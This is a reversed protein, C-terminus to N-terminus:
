TLGTIYFSDAEGTMDKIKDSLTILDIEINNKYLYKIAKWIQKNKKTYFANDDRIWAMTIETEKDGGLINCGLLAKETEESSPLAKLQEKKETM